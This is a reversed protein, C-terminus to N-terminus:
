AVNTHAVSVDVVDLGDRGLAAPIATRLDKSACAGIRLYAERTRLSDHGRYVGIQIPQSPARWFRYDSRM